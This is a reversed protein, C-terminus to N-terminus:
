EGFTGPAVEQWNMAFNKMKDPMNEILDTRYTFREAPNAPNGSLLSRGLSFTGWAVVTGEVNLTVDAISGSSDVSETVFDDNALYIGHMTSVGPDVTINGKVIFALFGGEAVTTNAGIRLNGNVFVVYKEGNGVVWQSSVTATGSQPRLYHFEKTTGPKNMTDAGWDNAQAPVVGLQAAFYTYDMRKGRYRAVASWLDDSITGSGLDTSGSGRILAGTTGGTGATILRHSASPLESRVTVGGGLGGAYIGAGAVQWWGERSATLYFNKTGPSTVSVSCSNCGSATSCVYGSPISVALNHSGPNATVVYAGSTNVAVGAGGDLSVSVGGTSWGSGGCNNNTDLYVTGAIQNNLITFSRVESNTTASGTVAVVRWYYTTGATGTFASSTTTSAVTAHLTTPPNATDIYVRYESACSASSSFTAANWQLNVNPTSM